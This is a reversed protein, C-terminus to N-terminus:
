VTASQAAQVKGADSLGFQSNRGVSLREFWPGNLAREVAHRTSGTAAALQPLTLPGKQALAALVARRRAALTPFPDPM